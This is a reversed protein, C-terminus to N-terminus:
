SSSAKTSQSRKSLSALYRPDKRLEKLDIALDVEAPSLGHEMCWILLDLAEKKRGLLTLAQVIMFRPAVDKAAFPEARKIDAEAAAADGVKAHYFALNSWGLRDGTTAALDISLLNAARRYSEKVLAPNGLMAYCDGIDRQILHDKPDLNGAESYMKLAESYKGSLFDMDGLGMYAEENKGRSLSESLANRADATRELEIYTRGLNAMPLSVKQAAMGAQAFAKAAEEYKSQRTLAVGLNNYAPWFNPRRDLIDKYVQEAEALKDQDLLTEAKADLIQPNGPDAKLAKDFYVFADATKGAYSLARAMSLLGTPSNPNYRIASSANSEALDISAPEHTVLYQEVYALALKAYGLAFHPDLDLVHQYKGIAQQLGARNPENMLKEADSFTQTVEPSVGRQEELDSLQVDNRPIRLLIAAEQAAKEALGGIEKIACSVAGKRLVRQSQADSLQLNLRAQSADQHLSATLVLNAGLVSESKQLSDVPPSGEPADSPTIILLDKVYAEARALRQSISDLITSLLPQSGGLPWALLAVSRPTPLPDFMNEIDPWELWASGALGAAVAASFGIMRRRSMGLLRHTSTTDFAVGAPLHRVAEPISAFREEVAPNLCGEVFKRWEPPVGTILAQGPAGKVRKSPLSPLKGTLMQSIVVGFSFVDSAKSPSGGYFLEPAMYGPTGAVGGVTLATTEALAARALGFDTVCAHVKDGSGELMINAAKIDRHLIGADHAASLGAGVQRIIPAAEPPPIPGARALRAALTEGPLLKMTLFTLRGEPRKWHFIDYIPCLNPHVVERANLVERELRQQMLPDAAYQSLVTKLAVHVGRLQRDAVEYVEGMGGRAIFRTVQFRDFLIDGPNFQPNYPRPADAPSSDTGQPPPMNVASRKLPCIISSRASWSAARWSMRSFCGKWGPKSRLSSGCANQLYAARESPDLGLATVFIQEAQEQLDEM